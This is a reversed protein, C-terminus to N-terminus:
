REDSKVVARTLTVLVLFLNALRNVVGRAEPPPSSIQSGSSCRRILSFLLQLRVSEGLSAQTLRLCLVCDISCLCSPNTIKQNKPLTM